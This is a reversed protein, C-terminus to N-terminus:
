PDYLNPPGAICRTHATTLHRETLALSCELCHQLELEEVPCLPLDDAGARIQLQIQTHCKEYEMTWM